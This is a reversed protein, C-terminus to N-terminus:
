AVAENPKLAKEDKPEVPQLSALLDVVIQIAGNLAHIQAITQERQKELALKKDTLSEPTITM